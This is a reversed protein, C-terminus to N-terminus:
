IESTKYLKRKGVLFLNFSHPRADDAANEAMLQASARAMGDTYGVVRVTTVSPMADVEDEHYNTEVTFTYLYPGDTETSM